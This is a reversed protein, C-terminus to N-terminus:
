HTKTTILLERVHVVCMILHPLIIVVTVSPVLDISRALVAYM